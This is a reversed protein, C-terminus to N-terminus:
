SNNTFKDSDRKAEKARHKYCKTSGLEHHHYACSDKMILDDGPSKEYLGVALGFLFEKSLDESKAWETIWDKQGHSVYFDVLLRRVPSSPLTNAYLYRIVEGVPYWRLGDSAKSSAKNIMADIIVDAFDTAMLKDALVYSKALQLYEMNGTDGPEDIRCPLTGTYLWHMYLRFVAPDDDPLRMVRETAEKWDSGMAKDFFESSARVLTEHVYFVTPSELGM